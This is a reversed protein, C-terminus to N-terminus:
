QKSNQYCYLSVKLKLQDWNSLWCYKCHLNTPESQKERKKIERRQRVRFRLKQSRHLILAQQGPLFDLKQCSLLNLKFQLLRHIVCWHLTSYLWMSSYQTYLQIGNSTSYLWNEKFCVGKFRATITCRLTIDTKYLTM